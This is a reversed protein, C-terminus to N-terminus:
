RNGSTQMIGIIEIKDGKNIELKLFDDYSFNIIHVELKYIDDTISGCGIFKNLKNNHTETFNTKVFEELIVRGSTNLIERLKTLIPKDNLTCIPEFKGLNTVVTNNRILLEYSVNGNNFNAIKLTRAQVGDLHIIHNSLILHEVHDIDENWVVVQVRKGNNNNNLYFKFFKYQQKNGVLRPSEIGDVYGIIKITSDYIQINDLVDNPTLLREANNQLDEYEKKEFVDNSILLNEANEQLDKNEKNEM